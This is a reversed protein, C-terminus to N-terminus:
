TGSPTTAPPTWLQGDELMTGMWRNWTRSFWMDKTIKEQIGHQNLAFTGIKPGFMEM